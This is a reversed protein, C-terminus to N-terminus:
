RRRAFRLGSWTEDLAAVKYDVLGRDMGYRRVGVQTLDSGLGSARKPWAIWLSRTFTSQAPEFEHELEDRDRVFLVAVDAPPPVVTAGDLKTEWGSPANLLTVTGRVGLKQLLPAGAYADMTGRVVPSAPQNRRAHDVADAVADWASTFTADPLLSQVRGVANREGGAFVLPVHRTATRQRLLVAV